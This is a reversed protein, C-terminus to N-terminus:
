KKRYLLGYTTEFVGLSTITLGVEYFTQDGTVKSLGIAAGGVAIWTLGRFLSKLNPGEPTSNPPPVERSSRANHSSEGGDSPHDREPM